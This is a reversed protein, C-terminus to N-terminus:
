LENKLTKIKTELEEKKFCYFIAKNRSKINM